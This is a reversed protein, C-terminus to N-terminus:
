DCGPRSSSKQEHSSGDLSFCSQGECTFDNRDRNWKGNSLGEAKRLGRFVMEVAQVRRRDKESGCVKTNRKIDPNFFHIGILGTLGVLM